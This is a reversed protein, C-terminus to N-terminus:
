GAAGAARAVAMAIQPTIVGAASVPVGAAALLDLAWTNCTYALSYPPGAELFVGGSETRRVLLPRGEADRALDGAVARALRGPGDPPVDLALAGDPVGARPAILIAAPGPVFARLLEVPGASDAAFYDRSGFAVGLFGPGPFPPPLAAEAPWDLLVETHVLSAEVLWVTRFPGAAVAVGRGDAVPREVRACGALPAAMAALLAGRRGM